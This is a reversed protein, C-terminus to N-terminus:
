DTKTEESDPPTNKDAWYGVCCLVVVVLIFPAFRVGWAWVFVVCGVFIALAAVLLLFKMALFFTTKAWKPPGQGNSADYM